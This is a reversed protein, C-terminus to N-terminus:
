EAYTEIKISYITVDDYPKDKEDTEVAAIKDIVELGEYVQGFVTYQFDLSPYGGVQAYANAVAEGWGEEATYSKMEAVMSSNIPGGHVIYFQSGQSVTTDGRRAMALAGKIHHLEACVEIDFPEGWISEGGLGTGLPDGGQIMFSQMVRHFILGDYYGEGAHTTFNEVAKPAYQPYVIAKMTGMSTDIIAITDGAKPAQLQVAMEGEEGQIPTTDPTTPEENGQSPNEGTNSPTPPKTECGALIFVLLVATFISVLKKMM